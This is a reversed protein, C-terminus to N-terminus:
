ELFIPLVRLVGDKAAALAVSVTSTPPLTGQVLGTLTELTASVTALDAKSEPSVPVSRVGENLSRGAELAKILAAGFEKHKATTWAPVASHCEGQADANCLAAEADDVAALVAHVDVSVSRAKQVKTTACAQALLLLCCVTLTSLWLPRSLIRHATM